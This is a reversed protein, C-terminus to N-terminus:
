ADSHPKRGHIPPCGSCAPALVAANAKHGLRSRLESFCLFNWLLSPSMGKPYIVENADRLVSDDSRLIRRTFRREITAIAKEILAANFRIETITLSPTTEGRSLVLSQRSLIFKVLCDFLEIGSRLSRYKVTPFPDHNQSGTISADTRGWCQHM